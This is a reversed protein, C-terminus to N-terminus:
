LKRTILITKKYRIIKIYKNKICFNCLQEFFHNLNTGISTIKNLQMTTTALCINSTLSLESNKNKNVDKFNSPFFKVQMQQSDETTIDIKDTFKFLKLVKVNSM